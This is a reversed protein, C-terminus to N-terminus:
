NKGYLKKYYGSARAIDCSKLFTDISVKEKRHTSYGSMWISTAEKISINEAM